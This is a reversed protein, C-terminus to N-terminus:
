APHSKNLGSLPVSCWSWVPQRERNVVATATAFRSVALTGWSISQGHYRQSPALTERTERRASKRRQRLRVSFLHSGLACITFFNGVSLSARKSLIFIFCLKSFSTLLKTSWREFHIENKTTIERRRRLSMCKPWRLEGIIKGFWWQFHTMSISLAETLCHIYNRWKM